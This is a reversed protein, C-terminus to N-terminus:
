KTSCPWAGSGLTLAPLMADFRQVFAEGTSAVEGSLDGIEDLLRAKDGFVHIRVVEVTLRLRKPVCELAM